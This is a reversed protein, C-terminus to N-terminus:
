ILLLKQRQVHYVPVLETSSMKQFIQSHSRGVGISSLGRYGWAPVSERRSSWALHTRFLSLSLAPSAITKSSSAWRGTYLTLCISIKGLDSRITKTMVPALPSTWIRDSSSHSLLYAHFVAEPLISAYCFMGNLKMTRFRVFEVSERCFCWCIPVTSEAWDETM